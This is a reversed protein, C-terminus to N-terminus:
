ESPQSPHMGGMVDDAIPGALAGEHAVARFLAPSQAMCLGGAAVLLALVPGGAMAFRKRWEPAIDVAVALVAAVLALGGDVLAARAAPSLAAIGLGTTPLTRGAPTALVLAFLILAASLMPVRRLPRRALLDLAFTVVRWATIAAVVALAIALIAFTVGGLARHHTVTRLVSGLIAFAPLCLAVWIAVGVAIPRGDGEALELWARRATRGVGVAVALPLATLAACALWAGLFSPGASSIRVAAPLSAVIAAGTGLLLSEGLRVLASTPAVLSAESVAAVPESLLSRPM